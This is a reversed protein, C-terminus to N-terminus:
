MWGLKKGVVGIAAMFLGGLLWIIFRIKTTHDAVQTEIGDIRTEAAAEHDSLKKEIAEFRKYGVELSEAIGSLLGKIEGTSKNTESVEKLLHQFLAEHTQLPPCEAMANVVAFM